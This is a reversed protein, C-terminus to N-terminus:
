YQIRRQTLTELIKELLWIIPAFIVDVICALVFARVLLSIMQAAGLTIADPVSQIIGLAYALVSIIGLWILVPTWAQRDSQSPLMGNSISFVLYLWLWFYDATLARPLDNLLLTLEQSVSRQFPHTPLNYAAIVLVLASGALLPAVGILAERLTDTREIEVFGLRLLGRPMRAPMLSFRRTRVDLFKAAVWHASEHVFTGPLLMISYLLFAFDADGTLLLGVGQTHRHVWRKLWLMLLTVGVLWLLSELIASM